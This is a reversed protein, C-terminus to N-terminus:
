GSWLTNRDLAFRSGRVRRIRGIPNGIGAPPRGVEQLSVEECAETARKLGNDTDVSFQVLFTQDRQRAAAWDIFAQVGQDRTATPPYCILRKLNERDTIADHYSVAGIL